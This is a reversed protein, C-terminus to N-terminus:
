SWFSQGSLELFDPKHSFILYNNAIFHLLWVYLQEANHCQFCVVSKLCIDSFIQQRNLCPVSFLVVFTADYFLFCNTKTESESQGKSPPPAPDRQHRDIGARQQAHEPPLRVRVGRVSAASAEGPVDRRVGARGHGAACQSSILTQLERNFYCSFQGNTPIESWFFDFPKLFLFFAGPLRAFHPNKIIVPRSISNSCLWVFIQSYFM